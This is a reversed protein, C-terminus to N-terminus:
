GFRYGVNRVTQIMDGVKPGLKARLRRIHVDVTRTGGFYDSEWVQELLEPRSFVRRRHSVFFKLLEFEKYTLDIRRSDVWVEYTASNMRLNGVQLQDKPSRTGQTKWLAFRLRTDLEDEHTPLSLFDYIGPAFRVRALDEARGVLIVPVQEWASLVGSPITGSAQFDRAMVDLLVVQPTPIRNIFQFTARPILQLTYGQRRLQQLFTGIPEQRERETIVALETSSAGPWTVPTTV